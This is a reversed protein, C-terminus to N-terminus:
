VVQLSWVMFRSSVRAVIKPRMPQLLTGDCGFGTGTVSVTTAPPWGSLAPSTRKLGSRPDPPLSTSAIARGIAGDACEVEVEVTPTGRSDLVERAHIRTIADNM